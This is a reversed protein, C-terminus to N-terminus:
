YLNNYAEYARMVKEVYHKTVSSPINDITKGNISYESNKLWKNVNGRGSHYAALTTAEDGYEEYLLKLLYTGYQINYEPDYMNEYSIDRKDDMRSGVWEYADEMLQMLGRAGVDSEALPDFNSETKIVAYVLNRDIGYKDAYMNVYRSYERPYIYKRSLDPLNIIGAIIIIVLIFPLLSKKKKRRRGTESAKPM